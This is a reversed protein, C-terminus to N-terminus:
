AAVVPIEVWGTAPGAVVHQRVPTTRREVLRDDGTGLNRALRPFDAGAVELVFRSGRALRTAIPDLCVDLDHEGAASCVTGHALELLHGGPTRELLRVVWDARADAQVPLRVAPTGVIDLNGDLPAATFRLADPRDATPARDFGPRVSPFPDLPDHTFDLSTPMGDAPMTALAGDITPYLRRAEAQAPWTTWHNAGIVFADARDPATNDELVENLWAVYEEGWRIRSAPGHDRVGFRRSDTGLDHEWPGVLLRRTPRPKLNRGVVDHLRLAEDVAVDYWGAAHFSAVQLGALEDDTLREAERHSRGAEAVPLWGPLDLGTFEPFTRVPLIGIAGANEAYLRAPQDPRSERCDGHAVWWGAHEALRLIGSRDFKTTALELTPALSIVARIAGPREAALCWATYAAYSGGYAVVTGDCWPQDLVWDVLAAGDCRENRYPMMTGESGYRGRVDAAVFAYGRKAWARGEAEHRDRGYMTRLVVVPAPAGTPVAISARGALGHALPVAVDVHRM